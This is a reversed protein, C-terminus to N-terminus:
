LLRELHRSGIFPTSSGSRGLGGCGSFVGGLEPKVKPCTSLLVLEERKEAVDERLFQIWLIWHETRSFPDLLEGPTRKVLGFEM